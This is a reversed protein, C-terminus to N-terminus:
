INDEEYIENFRKVLKYANEIVELIEADDKLVRDMGSSKINFIDLIQNQTM